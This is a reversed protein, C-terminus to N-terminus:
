IELPIFRGQDDILLIELQCEPVLPQCVELCHQLIMQYFLSSYDPILQWLERAMTIQGVRELVEAPVGSRIALSRIFDIDMTVKKSHTDLEGNALKVAKGIMIGLTVRPFGYDKAMTLCQGIFNGYQVFANSSLEPFRSRLWRESRGGSNLVLHEVGVAKSVSMERGISAVWTDLSYPRVVGTTGLISIGDIIGLRPNFTQAGLERGTPVSITIDVGIHETDLLEGVASTMMQRPVKNIAPDGIPLGIGPLTVVGVGQGRLFRIGKHAKTLRVTSHIEAGNTVDPDDGAYKIAVATASSPSLEIRQIPFPIVEGVPLTVEVEKVEEGDLLSQLAAITAATATTGTTFGIRLPFYSPLLQEIARRLGVKGTVLSSEKYGLPPRTIVVVKIGLALAIDVKEEFGSTSGSEKLLILDPQLEKFLLEDSQSDDYYVVKDRSLGSDTLAKDTDPIPMVRFYTDYLRWYSELKSISNVGTLALVKGVKLEYLLQLAAEFTPVKIAEAPIEPFQREFRVIPLGIEQRVKGINSHVISAFPHAADIILGVENEKCFSSMESATMGGTISLGNHLKVVQSSGKTSYYFPKGAEECVEIAIRGETTGGIILPKM